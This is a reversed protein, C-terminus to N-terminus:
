IVSLFFAMSPRNCQIRLKFISLRSLLSGGGFSNRFSNGSVGLDIGVGGFLNRSVELHQKVGGWILELKEM